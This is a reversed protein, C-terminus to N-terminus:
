AQEDGADHASTWVGGAAKAKERLRTLEKQNLLEGCARCKPLGTEIETGCFPCPAKAQTAPEEHWPASFGLAECAQHALQPIRARVKKEQWLLEAKNFWQLWTRKLTERAKEAQKEIDAGETVAFVGLHRYRGLFDAVISDAQVVHPVYKYNSKGDLDGEYTLRKQDPIPLSAWGDGKPCAPIERNGLSGHKLRVPYPNVSYIMVYGLDPETKPTIPRFPKLKQPAATQVAVASM